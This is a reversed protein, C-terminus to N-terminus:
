EVWVRVKADDSDVRVLEGNPLEDLSALFAAVDLTNGGAAALSAVTSVPLRVDVVAHEDTKEVVHVLVMGAEKSVRVDAEPSDVTVFKGDPAGTIAAFVQKWDIEADCDVDIKGQDFHDVKIGQIVGMVLGMPLHVEVNTGTSVENATINVWRTQEEAALGGAVLVMAVLVTATARM